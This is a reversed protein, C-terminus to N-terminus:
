DKPTVEWLPAPLKESTLYLSKGDTSYCVSEGQRRRPMSLRRPAKKFADAWSQGETRLYEYAVTYTQVVFRTSDRSMDSATTMFPITGQARAQAITMAGELPFSMSGIAKAIPTEDDSKKPWPMKYITAVHDNDWIRNKEVFYVTRTRPDIALSECDQPGDEYHYKFKRSVSITTPKSAHEKKLKPEKIVYLKGSKRKKNNDGIDGILLRHKGEYEYAVIDEVDHFTEDEIIFEGLHRGKLDLAFIRAVDGSDNHTWLVNPDRTSLALGSSETIQKNQILGLERITTDIPVPDTNPSQSTVVQSNFLIILTGLM